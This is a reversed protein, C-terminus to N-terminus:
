DLYDRSSLRLAMDLEDQRTKVKGDLKARLVEDFITRYVPGPAIGMEKLDNGTIDIKVDQLTTIYKSLWHGARDDSVSALLHLIVEPALGDLLARVAGPKLEPHRELRSLASLGRERQVVLIQRLNESYSLRDICEMYEHYKLGSLLAMLYTMWQRVPEPRYLLRYWALVDYTTDFIRRREDDFKLEPHIFRLIDLGACREIAPLPNQESLILRLERELRRGSVRAFVNLRVANKILNLTHKGITFNYRQEFRVARFVRTPDEIFSLSHLVRIVGDRIDRQGGFFDILTGFGGPDLRIALTNITFDRRFLDLKISSLAVTPLAAPYEYYEWRATAVDIKFPTKVSSSVKFDEPFIIVATQFKKHEKVRAGFRSALKKAFEIGDGEVVLDIDFNPLRMLLDRVFGGVVYVPVDLEGAVDSVTTFLDFIQSSLRQKLLSSVDRTQGRSELAGAPHLAPTESLMRLLDTRTVVGVLRGRESVPVFRQNLGVMVDQVESVGADPSVERFDTSMYERVPLRALGHFIAKEVTSRSILGKMRGDEVVPIGSIGYRNIMDHVEYLPADPSVHIVPSSMIDRVRPEQGFIKKLEAVLRNEAESLTVGKLTVSAAMAHGGGGLNGLVAGVDVKDTRSRGVILVQDSMLVIVFLAPFHRMDMLEHALVSFDEVYQASSTKAIAIQNGGLNYTVCTELLDNLLSVHEPTIRSNVVRAVQELDAGQELLWAAADLDEPTTSTYTFSGTDEHIGLLFLTALAPPVELGRERILGTMFTTNAGARSFFIRAEEPTICDDDAVHHDYVIVDVDDRHLFRALSGIRRKQCTDVVVLRTVESQDIEKIKKIPLFSPPFERIFERLPREMSGPLVIYAGPYLLAAAVASAM